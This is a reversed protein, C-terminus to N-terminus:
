SGKAAGPSGGPTVPRYAPQAFSFDPAALYPINRMRERSHLRDWRFVAGVTADGPSALRHYFWGAELPHIRERILPSLVVERRELLRLFEVAEERLDAVSSTHAGILTVERDALEGFDMGLVFGRTSGALVVRGGRRALRLAAPLAQPHGTTEFVVDAEARSEVESLLAARIAAGDLAPTRRQGSRAVSTVDANRAAAMQAVLQGIIGQGLVIVSEGPRLEGKRVAQSAIVGLQVFSAEEVDMGDPLLYLQDSSFLVVSSHPGSGAVRDGRRLDPVGEGVEVVEGALSYGPIQPFPARANPWSAYFARETGPSVASAVTRVLVEGPGPRPVDRALPWCKGPWLWCVATGRVLGRIRVLGERRARAWLGASFLLPPGPYTGFVARQARGVASRVVDGVRGGLMRAAIPRARAMLAM